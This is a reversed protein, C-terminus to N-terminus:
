SDGGTTTGGTTNGDTKTDGGTTTTTSSNNGGNTNSNDTKTNDTTSNTNDTESTTTDEEKTTDDEGVTDEDIATETNDEPEEELEEDEWIFYDFPKYALSREPDYVLWLQKIRWSLFIGGAVLPAGLGVGIYTSYSGLFSIMHVVGFNNSFVINLVTAGVYVWFAVFNVKWSRFTTLTTPYERAHAWKLVAWVYVGAMGFSLIMGIYYTLVSGATIVSIIFAILQLSVGAGIMIQGWMTLENNQEEDGVMWEPADEDLSLEICDLDPEVADETEQLM